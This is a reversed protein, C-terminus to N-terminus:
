IKTEILLATSGHHKGTTKNECGARTRVRDNRHDRYKVDSLDCCIFTIMKTKEYDYSRESDCIM